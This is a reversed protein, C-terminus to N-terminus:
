ALGGGGGTSRSGGVLGRSLLARWVYTALGSITGPAEQDFAPRMFPQMATDSTGFELHTGQEDYSKSPQDDRKGTSPGVLVAAALGSARGTSIVINSAIDPAGPAVPAIASARRQIPPAAVTRLAERLVNKSVRTPLQQLTAAVRAGGEVRMSIM